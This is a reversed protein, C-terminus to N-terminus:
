RVVGGLRVNGYGGPGGHTVWLAGDGGRGAMLFSGDARSVIDGSSTWIASAAVVV